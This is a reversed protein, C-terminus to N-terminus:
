LLMAKHGTETYVTPSACEIHLFLLLLRLGQWCAQATAGKWVEFCSCESLQGANRYLTCDFM